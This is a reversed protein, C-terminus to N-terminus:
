YAYYRGGADSATRFYAVPRSVAGTQACRAAAGCLLVDCAQLDPLRGLGAAAVPTPIMGSILALMSNIAPGDM